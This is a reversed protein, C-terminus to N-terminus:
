DSKLLQVADNFAKAAKFFRDFREEHRHGAIKIEVLFPKEKDGTYDYIVVYEDNGHEYYRLDKM